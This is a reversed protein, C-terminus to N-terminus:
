LTSHRSRVGNIIAVSVRWSDGDEDIGKVSCELRDEVVEGLVAGAIRIGREEFMDEVSRKNM